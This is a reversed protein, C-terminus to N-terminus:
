PSADIGVAAPPSTAARSNSRARSAPYWPPAELRARAADFEVVVLGFGDEFDGVPDACRNEGVGVEVVREGIAGEVVGPQEASGSAPLGREGGTDRLHDV